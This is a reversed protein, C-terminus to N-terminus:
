LDITESEFDMFDDSNENAMMEGLDFVAGEGSEPM